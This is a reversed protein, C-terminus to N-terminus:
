RTSIKLLKGYHHGWGTTGFPQVIEGEEICEFPQFSGRRKTYYDEVKIRTISFTLGITLFHKGNWYGINNNRGRGIYWRGEKLNKKPIQKLIKEIM